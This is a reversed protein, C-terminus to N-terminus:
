LLARSTFRFQGNTTDFEFLKSLSEVRLAKAAAHFVVYAAAIQTTDVAHGRFEAIEIRVGSYGRLTNSLCDILLTIGMRIGPSWERDNLEVDLLEIEPSKVREANVRAAAYIARGNSSQWVLRCEGQM